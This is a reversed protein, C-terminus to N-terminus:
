LRRQQDRNMTDYVFRYMAFLEHAAPEGINIDPHYKACVGPWGNEQIEQKMAEYRALSGNLTNVEILKDRIDELNKLVKKLKESNRAAGDSIDMQHEGQFLTLSIPPIFEM